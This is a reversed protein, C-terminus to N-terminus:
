FCTAIGHKPSAMAVSTEPTNESCLLVSYTNWSMKLGTGGPIVTHWLYDIFSIGQTRYFAEWKDSNFRLNKLCVPLSTRAITDFAIGTISLVGYEYMEAKAAAPGGAAYWV